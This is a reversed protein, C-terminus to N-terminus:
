SPYLAHYIKKYMNELKTVRIQLRQAVHWIAPTFSKPTKVTVSASITTTQKKSFIDIDTNSPKFVYHIQCYNM